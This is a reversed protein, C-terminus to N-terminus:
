TECSTRAGISTSEVPYRRTPRIGTAHLAGEEADKAASVTAGFLFFPANLGLVAWPRKFTSAADLTLDGTGQRPGCAM